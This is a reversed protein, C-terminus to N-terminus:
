LMQRWILLESSFLCRKFSGIRANYILILFTELSFHLWFRIAIRQLKSYDGTETHNAMVTVRLAPGGQVLDCDLAFREM